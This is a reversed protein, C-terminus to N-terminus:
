EAGGDEEPKEPAPPLEGGGFLKGLGDAVANLKAMVKAYDMRTPGVVGIVGKM